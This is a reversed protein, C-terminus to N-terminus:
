WSQRSAVAVAAQGSIEHSEALEYRAARCLQDAEADHMANLAEEVTGLVM